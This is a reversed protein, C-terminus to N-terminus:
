MRSMEAAIELAWRRKAEAMDSVWPTAANAASTPSWRECDKGHGCRGCGHSRCRCCGGPRCSRCSYHNHRGWCKAALPSLAVTTHYQYM